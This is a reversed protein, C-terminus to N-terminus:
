QDFNEADFGAEKATRKFSKKFPLNTQTAQM